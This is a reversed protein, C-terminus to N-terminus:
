RQSIGGIHFFDRRQQNPLGKSVCSFNEPFYDPFHALVPCFIRSPYKQWEWSAEWDPRVYLDALVWGGLGLLYFSV